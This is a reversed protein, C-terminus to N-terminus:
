EIEGEDGRYRDLRGAQRCGLCRVFTERGPDLVLKEAAGDINGGLASFPLSVVFVVAGLLTTALGIPRAVVADVMMEAGSPEDEPGAYALPANLAGVLLAASCSAGLLRSRRLSTLLSKSAINRKAM